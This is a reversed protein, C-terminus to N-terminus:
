RAFCRLALPTPCARANADLVPLPPPEGLRGSLHSVVTEQIPLQAFVTIRQRAMGVLQRKDSSLQIWESGRISLARGTCERLARRVSRRNSPELRLRGGKIPRLTGVEDPIRTPRRPCTLQGSPNRYTGDGPLVLTGVGVQQCHLANCEVSRGNVEGSADATLVDREAVVWCSPVLDHACGTARDCHDATCPNRDDCDVPTGTTCEGLFDCREDVTCADGDDCAAGIPEQFFQCGTETAESHRCETAVPCGSCQGFHCVDGTTDARGDDCPAGNPKFRSVCTQQSSQYRGPDDCQDQSPCPACLGGGCVDDITAPNGDDCPTDDDTAGAV